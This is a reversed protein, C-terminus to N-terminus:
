RHKRNEGDKAAGAECESPLLSAVSLAILEELAKETEAEGLRGILGDEGRIGCWIERSTHDIGRDEDDGNLIVGFEHLEERGLAIGRDRIQIELGGRVIEDFGTGVEVLAVALAYTDNETGRNSVRTV